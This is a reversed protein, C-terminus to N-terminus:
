LHDPFVSSMYEHSTLIVEQITKAYEISDMIMKNKKEIEVIQNNLEFGHEEIITSKLQIWFSPDILIDKKTQLSHSLTKEDLLIPNSFVDILQQIQNLQIENEVNSLISDFSPLELDNDSNHM